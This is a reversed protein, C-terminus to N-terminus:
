KGVEKFRIMPCETVNGAGQLTSNTHINSMRDALTCGFTSAHGKAIEAIADVPTTCTGRHFFDGANGDQNIATVQKKM